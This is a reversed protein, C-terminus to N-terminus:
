VQKKCKPCAKTNAAIWQMDLNQSMSKNEYATAQDCTVPMHSLKPCQACSSVGCKCIVPQDKNFAPHKMIVFECDRACKFIEANKQTYSKRTWHWYKEVMSQM